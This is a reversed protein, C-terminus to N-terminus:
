PTEVADRGLVLGARVRPLYLFRRQRASAASPCREGKIDGTVLEQHRDAIGRRIEVGFITGAVIEVGIAHDRQVSAGAVEVPVVLELRVVAHIVIQGGRGYQIARRVQLVNDGGGALVAHKNAHILFRVLLQEARRDRCDLVFVGNGGFFAVMDAWTQKPTDLPVARGVVM